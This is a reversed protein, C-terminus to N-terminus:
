KDEHKSPRPIQTLDAFYRWVTQPELGHIATTRETPQVMTAVDISTASLITFSRALPRCSLKQAHLFTARTVPGRFRSALMHMTSSPSSSRLKSGYVVLDQPELPAAHDCSSNRYCPPGLPLSCPVVLGPFCMHCREFPLCLRLNVLLL